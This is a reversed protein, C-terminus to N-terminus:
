VRPLRRWESSMENIRENSAKLKAEAHDDIEKYLGANDLVEFATIARESNDGDWGSRLWDLAEIMEPTIHM